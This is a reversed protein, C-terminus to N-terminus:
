SFDREKERVVFVPCPATRVVQETTSGICFRKWGTRGHTAIVILDVDLEKAAEVIEHAALGTRITSQIKPSGAAKSSAILAQLNKQAVIAHDDSYDLRPPIDRPGAVAMKESVHLLILEANFLRALRLGYKLAKQSPPSFDVPILIRSLHVLERIPATKTTAEM